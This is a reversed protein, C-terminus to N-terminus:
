ASATASTPPAGALLSLGVMPVFRAAQVLGAKAPSHTEALVLLPFAIASINTGATSLLQGTQLLM